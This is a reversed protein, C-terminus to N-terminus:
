AKGRISLPILRLTYIRTSPGTSTSASTPVHYLSGTGQVQYLTPDLPTYSYPYLTGDNVESGKLRM